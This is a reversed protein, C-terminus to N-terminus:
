GYGRGGLSEGCVPCFNDTSAVTHGNGCVDQRRVGRMIRSAILATPFWVVFIGAHLLWVSQGGPLPVGAISAVHAAVSLCFGLAALLMLPVLAAQM